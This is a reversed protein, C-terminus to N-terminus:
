DLLTGLKEKVEAKAAEAARIIASAQLFGLTRFISVNPRILLDPREHELKAATIAGGM